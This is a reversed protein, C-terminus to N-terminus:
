RYCGVRGSLVWADSAIEVVPHAHPPKKMDPQRAGNNWLHFM